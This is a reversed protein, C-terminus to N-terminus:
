CFGPRDRRCELQPRADLDVRHGVTRADEPHALQVHDAEADVRGVVRELSQQDGLPGRAALPELPHDRPEALDAQRDVVEGFPQRDALLLPGPPRLHARRSTAFLRASLPSSAKSRIMPVSPGPYTGRLPAPGRSAIAAMRAAPPSGTSAWVASAASRSATIRSSRSMPRPPM